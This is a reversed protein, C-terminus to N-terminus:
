EDIAHDLLHSRQDGDEAAEVSEDEGSADTFIRGPNARQDAIAQSPGPYLEVIGGVGGSGRQDACGVAADDNTDDRGVFFSHDGDADQRNDFGSPPRLM